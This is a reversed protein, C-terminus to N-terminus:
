SSPSQNRNSLASHSKCRVGRPRPLDLSTVNLPARPPQSCRARSWRPPTRGRWAARRPPWRPWGSPTASCRTSRPACGSRADARRRALITAAGAEAMWRANATQHDASAHPYPILVAPLGYQALEFVSGGARAVALDAAALARGFPSSTSACTRLAPRARTLEAFDRRAPSTSSTTAARRRVGRRRRLNISRAGSRAASSSCAADGGAPHRVRRARGRPRRGDAAGPPRHRPLADGDRGEIPFALCVRRARPALLRNTLGLHSDAETSCSRSGGCRARRARGPRRRLRRRRARRRRRPPALIAGRPASRAAGGARGRAGGEAPELALHGRRPAARARLRRGARARAEAREGGVFVVEAGEARLADAIAIAPVVHGATGGAAIVIRPPGSM